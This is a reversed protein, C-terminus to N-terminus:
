RSGGKGSGTPLCAHQQLYVTTGPIGSFVARVDSAAQTFVRGRSLRATTLEDAVPPSEGNQIIDLARLGGGSPAQARLYYGSRAAVQGGLLHEFRGSDGIVGNVVTVVPAAAKCNQEKWIRFAGDEEDARDGASELSYRWRGPREGDVAGNVFESVVDARIAYTFGVPLRLDPQDPNALRSSSGQAARTNLHMVDGGSVMGIVRGAKNFVPSGSAGGTAVADLMLLQRDRPDGMTELPGSVRTVDGSVYMPRPQKANPAGAGLNEFPFGVYGIEDTEMVKLLEDRGALELGPGLLSDENEDKLVLRAVDAVNVRALQSSEGDALSEFAQAHPHVYGAVGLAEGELELETPAGQADLRRVVPRAGDAIKPILQRLVHANTIFARRGNVPQSVVWATGVGTFMNDADVYGVLWIAPRVTEYYTPAPQSLTEPLSQLLGLTREHQSEIATIAGDFRQRFDVLREDVIDLKDGQDVLRGIIEAFAPRVFVAGVGFLVLVTGVSTALAMKFYSLEQRASKQRRRTREAQPTVMAAERSAAITVRLRTQALSGGSQGSRQALGGLLITRWARAAFPFVQEAQVVQRAGAPEAPDDVHIEQHARPELWIEGGRIRLDCHHLGVASEELPLVVDSTRSRGVTLVGDALPRSCLTQGDTAGGEAQVVLFREVAM